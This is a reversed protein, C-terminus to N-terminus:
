EIYFMPKNAPELINVIGEVGSRKNQCLQPLKRNKKLFDIQQSFNLLRRDTTALYVSLRGETVVDLKGLIKLCIRDLKLSYCIFQCIITFLIIQM